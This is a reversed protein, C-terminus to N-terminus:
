DHGTNIKVPLLKGAHRLLKPNEIIELNDDSLSTSSPRIVLLTQSVGRAVLEDSHAADLNRAILIVLDFYKKLLAILDPTDHALKLAMEEDMPGGAAFLSVGTIPDTQIANLLTVSTAMVETIGPTPQLDFARHVPTEGRTLDVVIVKLNEAANLAALAAAVSLKDGTAHDATVLVAHPAPISTLKLTLRDNLSKMSLSFDSDPRALAEHAPVVDSGDGPLPIILSSDHTPIEENSAYLESSVASAKIEPKPALSNHTTPKSLTAPAFSNAREAEPLLPPSKRRSTVKPNLQEALAVAMLGLVAAAVLSLYLIQSQKPFEPEAAEYGKSIITVLKSLILDESTASLNKDRSLLAEYIQRSSDAERQLERLTAVSSQATAVETELRSIAARLTQVREQELAADSRVQDSLFKIESTIDRKVEALQSRADILKPHKPGYEDQLERIRARLEAQQERLRQVLPSNSLTGIATTNGSRELAEIQRLRSQAKQNEVQALLLQTNLTSIQQAKVTVGLNDTLGNKAKFDDVAKEAALVVTRRTQLERDIYQKEQQILDSLYQRKFAKFQEILLNVIHAAQAASPDKYTIRIITTDKEQSVKLRDLFKKIEQSTPTQEPHLANLVLIAMRESQLLAADKNGAAPDVEQSISQIAAATSDAVDIIGTSSFKPTYLLAFLLGAGLVLAATLLFAPLHAKIVQWLNPLDLDDPIPPQRDSPDIAASTEHHYNVPVTNM